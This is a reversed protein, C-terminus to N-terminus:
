PFPLILPNNDKELDEQNDSALDEDIPLIIKSSGECDNAYNEDDDCQQQGSAVESSLSAM